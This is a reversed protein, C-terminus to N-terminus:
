LRCAQDQKTAHSPNHGIGSFEAYNLPIELIFRNENARRRAATHM